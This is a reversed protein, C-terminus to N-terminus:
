RTDAASGLEEGVGTEPDTDAGPIWRMTMDPLNEMNRSGDNTDLVTFGHREYFARAGTNAQFVHLSLGDPSHRMVEGLLVSGVGRRRAAPRLYLQELMDGELAAYGLVEGSGDVALWARGETLVINEVWWTVEELSRKQPPLYPMTGARSALHIEAIVAADAVDAPRIEPKGHQASPRGSDHTGDHTM